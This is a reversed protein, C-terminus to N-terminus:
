VHVNENAPFVKESNSQLSESLGEQQKKVQSALDSASGTSQYFFLVYVVLLQLVLLYGLMWYKMTPYARFYYNLRRLQSVARIQARRLKIKTKDSILAQSQGRNGALKNIVKHLNFASKKKLASQLLIQDAIDTGSGDDHRTDPFDISFSPSSHVRDDLRSNHPHDSSMSLVLNPQDDFHSTFRTREDQIVQSEAGSSSYEQLSRNISARIDDVGPSPLSTENLTVENGRGNSLSSTSANRVSARQGLLPQRLKSTQLKFKKTQRSPEIPTAHSVNEQERVMNFNHDQDPTAQILQVVNLQSDDPTPIPTSSSSTSALPQILTDAPETQIPAQSRIPGIVPAVNTEMLESRLQDMQQNHSDIDEDQSDLMPEKEQMGPDLVSIVKNLLKTGKLVTEPNQLAQAADQDLRVLMAEAKSTLDSFWSM